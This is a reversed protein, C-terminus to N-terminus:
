LLEDIRLRAGEQTVRAPVQRIGLRTTLLGQQDFYIPERWRRMLELYSGGTLILRVRGKREVFEERARLIQEEDRADFFFLPRSLSVVDLPNVRTGSAAILRGDADAIPYPVEISPDFHFSRPRATRTLGAVPTPAEMHHRLRERAAAQLRDLGGNTVFERLRSQVFDLLSPESIPHVPGIVGLDEASATAGIGLTLVLVLSPGSARHNRARRKTESCGM